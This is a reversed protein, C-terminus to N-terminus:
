RPKGFGQAVAIAPAVVPAVSGFLGWGLAWGISDNRRYGHFVCAATSVVAAVAWATRWASRETIFSPPWRHSGWQLELSPPSPRESALAPPSPASPAWPDPASEDWHGVLVDPSAAKINSDSYTGRM